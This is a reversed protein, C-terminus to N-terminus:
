DPRSHPCWAWPRSNGTAEGGLSMNDPQRRKGRRCFYRKPGPQSPCVIRARGIGPRSQRGRNPFWALRLRGARALNPGAWASSDPIWGGVRDLGAVVRGGRRMRPGDIGTPHAHHAVHAGMRQPSSALLRVARPSPGPLLGGTWTQCAGAATSRPRARGRPPSMCQPGRFRTSVLPLAQARFGAPMRPGVMSAAWRAWRAWRAWWGAPYPHSSCWLPDSPDTSSHASCSQPWAM